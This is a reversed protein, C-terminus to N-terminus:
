EQEQEHRRLWPLWPTKRYPAMLLVLLILM